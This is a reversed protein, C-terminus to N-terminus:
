KINSSEIWKNSINLSGEVLLLQGPISSNMLGVIFYAGHWTHLPLTSIQLSSGSPSHMSQPAFHFFGSFLADHRSYQWYASLHLAIMDARFGLFIQPQSIGKLEAILIKLKDFEIYVLRILSMNEIFSANLYCINWIYRNYSLLFLHM